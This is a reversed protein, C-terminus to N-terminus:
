DKSEEEVQDTAQSIEILISPEVQDEKIRPEVVVVETKVEELESKLPLIGVKEAKIPAEERKKLLQTKLM